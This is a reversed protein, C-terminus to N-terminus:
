LYGANITLSNPVIEQEDISVSRFRGNQVDKSEIVIDQNIKANSVVEGKIYTNGSGTIAKTLTGGTLYLESDNKITGKINDANATLSTSSKLVDVDYIEWVEYEGTQEIDIFNGFEDYLERYIPYFEFNDGNMEIYLSTDNTTEVGVIEYTPNGNEDVGSLWRPMSAKEIVNKVQAPIYISQSISSTSDVVVHSEIRVSGKGSIHTNSLYLPNLSEHSFVNSSGNEDMKDHKFRIGYKVNNVVNPVNLMEPNIELAGGTIKLNDQTLSKDYNFTILGSKINTTGSGDIGKNFYTNGSILNITGNNTVDSGTGMNFFMASRLNLVGENTVISGDFNADTQVLVNNLTLTRGADVDFIFSSDFLSEGFNNNSVALNKLSFNYDGLRIPAQLLFYLSSEINGNAANGFPSRSGSISLTRNLFPMFFDYGIQPGDVNYKPIKLVISNVNENNIAKSLDNMDDVYTTAGFASCCSILMCFVVIKKFLRKM